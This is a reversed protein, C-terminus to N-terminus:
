FRYSIGVTAVPYFRYNRTDHVIIAQEAAVSQQVISLNSFSGGSSELAVQPQGSFAVGAVAIVSWRSKTRFTNNFGVGAFPEVSSLRIDGDLRGVQDPTFSHGDITIPQTPSSVISAKRQGAYAGGSLMFANGFPHLDAFAGGTFDRWRGQYPINGYTADHDLALADVSARLDLWPSVGAQADLGIGTTGAHAGLAFGTNEAASAAGAVGVCLGAVAAAATLGSLGSLFRNM